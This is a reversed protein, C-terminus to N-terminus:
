QIADASTNEGTAPAKCAKRATSFQQWVSQRATNYTKKATRSSEKFVSHASKIATDRATRDTLTWATALDSARKTFASSMSTSFTSFVSQIAAERTAVAPAVCAIMTTQNAGKNTNTTEALAILGFMLSSIVLAGGIIKKIM